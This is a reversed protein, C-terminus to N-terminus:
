VARRRGASFKMLSDSTSCCPYEESSSINPKHTNAAALTYVTPVVSTLRSSVGCLGEAHGLFLLGAPSLYDSIKDIVQAKTQAGFYILVNRCFILDFRGTLPYTKDNLNLYQFFLRARLEPGAKMSGMQRDTGKLMFAKLYKEPIEAAKEIPWLASRAKDLMRLSIDTAMVTWEWGSLPPFKEMLLMAISYPEEGSSCATSWVRIQRPREGHDAQWLWRPFVSNRLFEFHRPERFFHTENTSIQTLMQGLEDPNDRVYRYYSRFNGLGLQRIRRNLRGVLLAKKASSLYIGSSDQILKQFALFEEHSIAPLGRGFELASLSDADSMTM